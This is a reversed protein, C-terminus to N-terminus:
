GPGSGEGLEREETKEDTNVLARLPRSKNLASIYLPVYFSRHSIRFAFYVILFHVNQMKYKAYQM